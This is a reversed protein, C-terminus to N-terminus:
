IFLNLIIKVFNSIAMLKFIIYNLIIVEKEFNLYLCGPVIIFKLYHFFCLYGKLIFNYDLRSSIHNDPWFSSLKALLFLLTISNDELYSYMWISNSQPIQNFFM